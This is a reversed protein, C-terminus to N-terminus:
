AMVLQSRLEDIAKAPYDSTRIFSLVMDPTADFKNAKAHDCLISLWSNGELSDIGDNQIIEDIQFLVFSLFASGIAEEAQDGSLGEIGKRTDGRELFEGKQLKKNKMIHKYNKM